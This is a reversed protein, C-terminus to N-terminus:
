RSEDTAQVWEVEYGLLSSLIQRTAPAAVGGGSGGEEIVVAVAYEPDDAPAYAAFWAYDDKGRVEATGTKGAVRTPFGEWADEATGSETVLTLARRIIDINEDSVPPEHVIEPEYLLSTDETPGIIEQMLHPRMMVGGNGLTGFVSAMQLPTTLMDGQGIAMNVTDGPLWTQYEPYFSNYERKWSADPVRGPVEGPLDIGTQEGLGFSRAYAQLREDRRKYFEYGIEYFVTDCSDRMGSMFGMNGHGTRKWCHKPWQEGMETWKGACYYGKSLNTVGEELGAIGTVAKFTSAPPYASMVARNNLPYESDEDNLADWEEQGIGGIFLTPDYTPVSAMAIVEGTRV